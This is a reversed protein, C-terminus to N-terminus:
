KGGIIKMYYNEAEKMMEDLANNIEAKKDIDAFGDITTGIREQQFFAEDFEGNKARSTEFLDGFCDIFLNQRDSPIKSFYQEIKAFDFLFDASLLIFEGHLVAPLDAISCNIPYKDPHDLELATYCPIYAKDSIFKCVAITFTPPTGRVLKFFPHTNNPLATLLLRYKAKQWAPSQLQFALSYGSSEFAELLPKALKTSLYNTLAEPDELDNEQLPFPSVEDYLKDLADSFVTQVWGFISQDDSLDLDDCHYVKAM